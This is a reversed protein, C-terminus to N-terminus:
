QGAGEAMPHEAGWVSRVDRQVSRQQIRDLEGLALRPCRTRRLASQYARRVSRPSWPLIAAALWARLEPPLRDYDGMPETQRRRRKLSTKGQNSRM